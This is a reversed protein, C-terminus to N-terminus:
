TYILAIRNREEIHVICVVRVGSQKPTDRGLMLHAMMKKTIGVISLWRVYGVHSTVEVDVSPVGSLGVSHTLTVVPSSNGWTSECHVGVRFSM